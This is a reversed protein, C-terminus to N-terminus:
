SVASAGGREHFEAPTINGSALGERRRLLIEGAFRAGRATERLVNDTQGLLCFAFNREMKRRIKHLVRIVLASISEPIFEVCFAVIMVEANGDMQNSLENLVVEWIEQLVRHFSGPLLDRNLAVLHVNLYEMLPAIAETTPLSDPSWALHFMAKKLPPRM